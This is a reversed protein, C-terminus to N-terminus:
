LTLRVDFFMKSVPSKLVSRLLLIHLHFKYWIHICEIYQFEDGRKRIAPAKLRFWSFDSWFILKFSLRHCKIRCFILTKNFSLLNLHLNWFSLSSLNLVEHNCNWTTSFFSTRQLRVFFYDMTLSLGHIDISLFMKLSTYYTDIITIKM